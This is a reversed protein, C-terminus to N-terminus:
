FRRDQKTALEVIVGGGKNGCRNTRGRTGPFLSRYHIMATRLDETSVEGKELRLAIEHASRYNATVGPHDVSMDATRQAFDAVPYARTQMMSSVLEDAEIVAAKPDRVWSGPCGARVGAWFAAAARGDHDKEEGRWPEPVM